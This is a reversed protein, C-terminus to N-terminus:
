RRRRRNARVHTRRLGEVSTGATFALFGLVLVAAGGLLWVVSAGSTSMPSAGNGFSVNPGLARAAQSLAAEVARRRDVGSRWYVSDERATYELRLRGGSIWNVDGSPFGANRLFLAIRGPVESASGSPLNRAPGVEVRYTGPPRGESSPVRQDWDGLSYSM